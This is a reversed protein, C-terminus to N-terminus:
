FLDSLGIFVGKFLLVECDKALRKGPLFLVLKIFLLRGLPDAEGEQWVGVKQGEEDVHKQDDGDEDEEEVRPVDTLLVKDPLVNDVHELFRCM